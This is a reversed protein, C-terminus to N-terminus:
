KTKATKVNSWDSYIKTGNSEIYSRIRIFYKKKAKLKKKITATKTTPKKITMKKAGAFSKKLSYQIEYGSVTSNAVWKAILQKAKKGKKVSSLKIVPATITTTGPTTIAGSDTNPTGPTGSSGPAPTQGTPTQPVDTPKPTETASPEETPKPEETAPAETAPPETAPPETPKVTPTATPPAATPTNTPKATPTPTPSATPTPSPSPSPTALRPIKIEDLSTIEGTGDANKFLKHCVSCEYYEEYGDETYSAPQADHKVLTHAAPIEVIRVEGCNSCTMKKFGPTDCTAPTIVEESWSHNGCSESLSMWACTMRIPRGVIPSWIQAIVHVGGINKAAVKDGFVTVSLGDDSVVYDTGETLRVEFWDNVWDYLGVEYVIDYDIDGLGDTVLNATQEYDDYIKLEDEEFHVEYDLADLDYDRSVEWGQHEDWDDNPECDVRLTIHTDWDGKRYIKFPVTSGSSAASDIYEGLDDNNGILNDDMDYIELCNEDYYWRCHIDDFLEYGQENNAPYRRVNVNIYSWEGLGLKRDIETPYIEDYSDAIFLRVNDSCVDIPDGTDPDTGEFAVANIEIEEWIGRMGDPLENFTVTAKKSDTPNVSIQAWESGRTIEWAVTVDDTSADGSLTQHRIVAQLEKTSGPLAKDGDTYDIRIGYVDEKVEIHLNHEQEVGALDVYTVTLDAEGVNKAEYHWWYNDSTSDNDEYRKELTIVPNDPDTSSDYVKEVNLVEFRFDRGDPYESNRVYVDNWRDVQNGWGTLMENYGRLNYFEQAEMLNWENWTKTIVAVGDYSMIKAMVFIHDYGNSVLTPVDITM